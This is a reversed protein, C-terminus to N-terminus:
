WTSGHTSVAHTFFVHPWNVSLKTAESFDDPESCDSVTRYPLKIKMINVRRTRVKQAAVAM